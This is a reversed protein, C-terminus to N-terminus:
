RLKVIKRPIYKRFTSPAIKQSIYGGDNFMKCAEKLSRNLFVKQSHEAEPLVVTAPGNLCFNVIAEKMETSIKCTHVKKPRHRVMYINQMMGWSIGLRKLIHRYSGYEAKLKIFEEGLRESRKQKLRVVKYMKKMLDTDISKSEASCVTVGEQVQSFNECFSSQDSLLDDDSEM